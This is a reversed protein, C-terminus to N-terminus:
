YHYKHRNLKLFLLVIIVAMMEAIVVSLWIGDLGWLLPFIFVAGTEFVLTRLFSITGSTLGDNLATFFTSGFIAFGAFLFSFSYLEFARETMAVLELDYGVFLRSLLPAFLQAASFMTVAFAAIIVMGKKLL